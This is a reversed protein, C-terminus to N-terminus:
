EKRISKLLELAKTWNEPTGSFHGNWESGEASLLFFVERRELAKGDSSKGPLLSLVAYTGECHPGAFAVTEFRESALQNRAQKIFDLGMSGVHTPFDAPKDHAKWRRLAGMAEMPNKSEIAYTSVNKSSDAQVTWGDPPVMVLGGTDPHSKRFVRWAKYGVAGIALVILLIRLVRGSQSTFRSEASSHATM